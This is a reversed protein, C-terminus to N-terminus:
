ADKGGLRYYEKSVAKLRELAKNEEEKISMLEKKAIEKLRHYRCLDARAKKVEGKIHNFVLFKNASVIKPKSTLVFSKETANLFNFLREHYTIHDM